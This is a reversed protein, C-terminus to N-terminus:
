GRAVWEADGVGTPVRHVQGLHPWGASSVERALALMGAVLGIM